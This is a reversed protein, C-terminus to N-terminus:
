RNEWNFLTAKFIMETIRLATTTTIMATANM